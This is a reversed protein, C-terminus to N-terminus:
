FAYKSCIYSQIVWDEMVEDTVKFPRKTLAKELRSTRKKKQKQTEMINFMDELQRSADDELLDDFDYPSKEALVKAEARNLAWEELGRLRFKQAVRWEILDNNTFKTISKKKVIRREWTMGTSNSHELVYYIKTLTMLDKQFNM